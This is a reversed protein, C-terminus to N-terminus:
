KSFIFIDTASLSGKDDISGTVVTSDKSKVDDIGLTKSNKKVVTTPPLNIKSIPLNSNKFDNLTLVSEKVESSTGLLTFFKTKQNQDRIIYTAIGKGAEKPLGIVMVIESLKLDGFGILKKGKSDFNLFKTSDSTYIVKPGNPTTLILQSNSTSSITGELFTIQIFRKETSDASVSSSRKSEVENLRKQIELQEPSSQSFAFSPALLVGTTFLLSLLFRYKM